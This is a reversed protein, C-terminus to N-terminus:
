LGFWEGLWGDMKKIEATQSTIIDNALAKLEARSSRELVLQAMDLAGQHHPIMLSLFVAELRAPSLRWFDAMMEMGGMMMGGMAMPGGTMMGGMAMPGPQGASQGMAAQHQAHGPMNPMTAARPMQIQPMPRNAPPQGAGGAMMAGHGAHDMMAVPDPMAVGFWDKLWGRMQQIERSQAEIIEKALQKAEDRRANAALPRTMLVAMAHHHIMDRLFARDFDDGTLSQLSHNMPGMQAEASQPSQVLEAAATLAAVGAVTTLFTRRQM